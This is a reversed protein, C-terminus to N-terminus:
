ATPVQGQTAAKGAAAIPSTYIEPSAEQQITSQLTKGQRPQYCVYRGHRDKSDADVFAEFIPVIDGKDDRSYNGDDDVYRRYLCAVKFGEEYFAIPDKKHLKYGENEPVIHVWMETIKGDLRRLMPGPGLETYSSNSITMVDAWPFAKSVRTAIDTRAGKKRRPKSSDIAAYEPMLEKEPDYRIAALKPANPNVIGIHHQSENNGDYVSAGDDKRHNNMFMNFKEQTGVDVPHPDLNELDILGSERMKDELHGGNGLVIADSHIPAEDGVKFDPDYTNKFVGKKDVFEIFHGLGHTWYYQVMRDVLKQPM